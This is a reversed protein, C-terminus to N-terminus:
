AKMGEHTWARQGGAAGGLELTTSTHADRGAPHTVAGVVAAVAAVLERPGATLVLGGGANLRDSRSACRSAGHSRSSSRLCWLM